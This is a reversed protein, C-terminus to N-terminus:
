NPSQTQAKNLLTQKFQNFHQLARFQEDSLGEIKPLEIPYGSLSIWAFVDEFLNNQDTPILLYTHAIFQETSEKSLCLNPYYQIFYKAWTNFFHHRLNSKDPHKSRELLITEFQQATLLPILRHFHELGSSIELYNFLELTLTTDQERLCCEVLAHLLLSRQHKFKLNFLMTWDSFITRWFVLPLKEFIQYLYDAAKESKSFDLFKQNIELEKILKRSNSESAHDILGYLFLQDNLEVTPKLKIMQLSPDYIILQQILTIVQETYPHQLNQLFLLHINQQKYQEIKKPQYPEFTQMHPAFFAYPMTQIWEARQDKTLKKWLADFYQDAFPHDKPDLPMLLQEIQAKTLKSIADDIIKVDHISDTNEVLETTKYQDYLKLINAAKLAPSQAFEVLKYSREPLTRFLFGANKSEAIVAQVLHPPIAWQQQVCIKLFYDVYQPKYNSYYSFETNLIRELVTTAELPMVTFAREAFVIENLQQLPTDLAQQAALQFLAWQTNLQLLSADAQIFDKFLEPVVLAQQYHNGLTLKLELQKNFNEFTTNISM